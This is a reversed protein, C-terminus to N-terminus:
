DYTLRNMLTSLESTYTFRFSTNNLEILQYDISVMELDGSGWNVVRDIRLWCNRVPFNVQCLETDGHHLAIERSIKYNIVAILCRDMDLNWLINDKPKPKQLFKFPTM